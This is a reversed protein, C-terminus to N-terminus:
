GEAATKRIQDQQEQLHSARRGVAQLKEPRSEAEYLDKLQALASKEIAIGVLRVILMGEPNRNLLRGLGAAATYCRESEASGGSALSQRGINVLERGLARYQSSQKLVTEMVSRQEDSVLSIYQRETMTFLFHEQSFRLDGNWDVTVLLDVAKRSDGVTWLTLSELIKASEPSTGAPSGSVANSQAALDELTKRGALTYGEPIDTSFMGADPHPIERFHRMTLEIALKDQGIPRRAVVVQVPRGTKADAYVSITETYLEDRRTVRFGEAPQGDVQTTGLTEEAGAQLSWLDQISQGPQILLGFLGSDKQEQKDFRYAAKFKEFLILSKGIDNGIIGRITGLGGHQELCLRGPELVMGKLTDGVGDAARVQVDFEYSTAQLQQLCAAFVQTSPGASIWVIVGVAVSAVIGVPVLLRM